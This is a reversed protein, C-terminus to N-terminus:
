IVYLSKSYIAGELYQWQSAARFVTLYKCKEHKMKVLSALKPSNVARAAACHLVTLFCCTSKVRTKDAYSRVASCCQLMEAPDLRTYLTSLPCHGCKLKDAGCVAGCGLCYTFSDDEETRDLKTNKILRCLYTNVEYIYQPCNQKFQFKPTCKQM